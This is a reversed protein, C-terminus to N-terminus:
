TCSSKGCDEERCRGANQSSYKKRTGEDSFDEPSSREEQVIEKAGEEETDGEEVEVVEGEKQKQKEQYGYACDVV